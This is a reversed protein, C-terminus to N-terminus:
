EKESVIKIKQRWFCFNIIASFLFVIFVFAALINGYSLAQLVILFFSFFFVAMLLVFLFACIAVLMKKQEADLKYVWYFGTGIIIPFILVYLFLFSIELAKREVPFGKWIFIKDRISLFNFEVEKVMLPYFSVLKKKDSIVSIIKGENKVAKQYTKDSFGFYNEIKWAVTDRYVFHTEIVKYFFQTRKDKYYRTKVFKEAFLTSVFVFILLLCIIIKKM